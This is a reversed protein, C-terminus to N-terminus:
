KVGIIKQTQISLRWEPNKLVFDIAPQYNESCPQIFLHPKHKYGTKQYERKIIEKVHRAVKEFGECCVIKIEHALLIAKDDPLKEIKPSITLYSVMHLSGYKVCRERNADMLDAIYSLNTGNTELCVLPNCVKNYHVATNYSSLRAVLSTLNHITPEGGTLIILSDNPTENVNQEFLNYVKKVVEDEEMEESPRHDTDCFSCHLNCGALRIFVAPKGAHYGEGQISYFIESIPYLM